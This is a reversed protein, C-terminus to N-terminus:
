TLKSTWEDLAMCAEESPNRPIHLASVQCLMEVGNQDRLNIYPSPGYPEFDASDAIIFDFEGNVGVELEGGHTEGYVHWRTPDPCGEIEAPFKQSSIRDHWAVIAPNRVGFEKHAFYTALKSAVKYGLDM